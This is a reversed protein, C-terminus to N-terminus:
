RLSFRSSVHVFCSRDTGPSCPKQRVSLCDSRKPLTTKREHFNTQLMLVVCNGRMWRVLLMEAQRDRAKVLLHANRRFCM